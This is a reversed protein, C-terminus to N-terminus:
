SRRLQEFYNESNFENSKRRSKRMEALDVDNHISKKPELHMLNNSYFNHLESVPVYKRNNVIIFGLRGDEILKNLQKKSLHMQQSLETLTLLALNDDIKNM